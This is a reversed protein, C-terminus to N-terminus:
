YNRTKLIYIFKKFDLESCPVKFLELFLADNMDSKITDICISTNNISFIIEKTIREEKETTVLTLYYTLKLINNLINQKKLEITGNYDCTTGGSLFKPVYQTVYMNQLTDEILYCRRYNSIGTGWDLAEDWFLFLPKDFLIGFDPISYPYEFGSSFVLTQDRFIFLLNINKSVSGPVKNSFM